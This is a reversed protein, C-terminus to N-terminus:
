DPEWLKKKQRKGSTGQETDAGSSSERIRVSKGKEKSEEGAALGDQIGCNKESIDSTWTGM